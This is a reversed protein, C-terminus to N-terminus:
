WGGNFPAEGFFGGFDGGSFDGNGQSGQDSQTQSSGNADNATSMQGVKVTLTLKKQGRYVTVQVTDGPKTQFLATRLDATDKVDTSNIRVIVDGAKLGASKADASTVKAVYVGADVPVNRLYPSPVEQLPYAEIGLAPHTAHGTAIIESAIVKVLNSPIAFGMGEVGDEAIKSSTIGIVEGKINLLPGGSNGPNIAADTQIVSQYDLTQQSEPEEVPMERAKASVIGSTVSDAFDLGMPTGIAVVPEGPQIDDSNAFALPQVGSFNSAATKLVALDTYPDTGVVQASVHKGSQLVLDVKSGGEVVHNNTVLYANQGQKEILVGSGIDSEQQQTKQTFFDQTRTYNVVAVVDPSAQKVLQTIGDNVSVNVSTPMASTSSSSSSSSNSNGSTAPAATAFHKTAWPLLAFTSGSGVAASVVCVALWKWIGSERAFRRDSM